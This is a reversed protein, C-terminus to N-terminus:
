IPCIKRAHNNLFDHMSRIRGLYMLCVTCGEFKLYLNSLRLLAFLSLLNLVLEAHFRAKLNGVCVGLCIEIELPTYGFQRPRFTSFKCVFIELWQDGFAM